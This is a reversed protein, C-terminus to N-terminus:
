CTWYYKRAKYVWISYLIYIVTKKHHEAKAKRLPLKAKKELKLPRLPYTLSSRRLDRLNHM